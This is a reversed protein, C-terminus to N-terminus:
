NSKVASEGSVYEKRYTGTALTQGRGPYAKVGDRGIVVRLVKLPSERSM